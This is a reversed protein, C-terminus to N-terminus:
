PRNLRFTRRGDRALTGSDVLRRLARYFAEHTLGLEAAVAVLPRDLTVPGDRGGALALFAEIRQGAGKLRLLEATARAADLRGALWAAFGLAMRPHIRLALDVAERPFVSLASPKLAVLELPPNPAFLSSEGVIDGAGARHCAVRNRVARVAGTEVRCLGAVVLTEDKALIRRIPRIVDLIPNHDTPM